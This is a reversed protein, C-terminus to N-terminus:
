VSPYIPEGGLIVEAMLSASPTTGGTLTPTTVVRIFRRAATLDVSLSNETNAATLATSTAVNAGDPMYDAYTTGDASDQLKSVVSTTAPGGALAGLVTHLVCSLPNGNHAMRDIGTGNIAANAGAQPEVSTVASIYAGINRSQVIDM